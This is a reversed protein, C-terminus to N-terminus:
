DDSPCPQDNQCMDDYLWGDYSPRTTKVFLLATSAEFDSFLHALRDPPCPPDDSFNDDNERQWGRPDSSDSPVPRPLVLDTGDFSAPVFYCGAQEGPTSTPGRVVVVATHSLDLDRAVDDALEGSLIFVDDDQMVKEVMRCKPACVPGSSGDWVPGAKSEIEAPRPLDEKVTTKQAACGASSAM